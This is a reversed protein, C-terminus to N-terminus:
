ANEQPHTLSTAPAEIDILRMSEFRTQWIDHGRCRKLEKIAALNEEAARDILRRSIQWVGCRHPERKEIAVLHM